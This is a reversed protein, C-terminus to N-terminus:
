RKSTPDSVTESPHVQPFEVPNESIYLLAAERRRNKVKDAARVKQETRAEEKLLKQEEFYRDINENSLELLFAPFQSSAGSAPYGSSIMVARYRICREDQDDLSVEIGSIRMIDFRTPVEIRIVRLCSNWFAEVVAKSTM